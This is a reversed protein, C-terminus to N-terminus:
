LLYIRIFNLKFLGQTTPLHQLQCFGYLANFDQFTIKTVPDGNPVTQAPKPLNPNSTSIHRRYVNVLGGVVNNRMLTRVDENGKAFSYALPADQAYNKFMASCALSPLSLHTTADEGFLTHLSNFCNQLAKGLPGVDLKNYIELWDVFNAIKNPHNNPLSQRREYECKATQYEEVSVNSNKLSSYFQAHRPFEIQAQMDEINSFAEYPFISKEETVGWQKLYKSLNCPSTFKLVDKFALGDSEISFYSVGRKPISMNSKQSRLQSILVGAM